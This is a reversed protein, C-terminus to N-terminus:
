RFHAGVRLGLDGLFALCTRADKFTAFSATARQLRTRETDVLTLEVALDCGRTSAIRSKLAANVDNVFCTATKFSKEPLKITVVFRQAGITTSLTAPQGIEALRALLPTQDDGDNDKM